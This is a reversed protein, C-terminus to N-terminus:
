WMPRARGRPSRMPGRGARTKPRAEKALQDMWDHIKERWKPNTEVALAREFYTMAELPRGSRMCAVGMNALADRNNPDLRLAWLYDKAADNYRGLGAYALGRGLFAKASRPALKVAITYDDVASEHQMDFNKADGRAIYGQPDSPRLRIYRDLDKLARHSVGLRDYAAGRLLYAEAPTGGKRIARGLIRIASGYQGKNIQEKAREISADTRKSPSEAQRALVPGHFLLVLALAPGIRLIAHYRLLAESM